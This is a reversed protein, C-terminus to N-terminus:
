YLNKGSLTRVAVANSSDRKQPHLYTCTTAPQHGPRHQWGAHWLIVNESSCNSRIAGFQRLHACFLLQPLVKWPCMRQVSKVRSHLQLPAANPSSGKGVTHSSGSSVTCLRAGSYKPKGAYCLSTNAAQIGHLATQDCTVISAATHGRQLHGVTSIDHCEGAATRRGVKHLQVAAHEVPQDESEVGWFRMDDDHNPTSLVWLLAQIVCLM